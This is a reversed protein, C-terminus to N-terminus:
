RVEALVLGLQVGRQVVPEVALLDRGYEQAADVAHIGTDLETIGLELVGDVAQLHQQDVARVSDEAVGEDVVGDFVADARDGDIVVLCSDGPSALVSILDGQVFARHVDAYVLFRGGVRGLVFGPCETSHAGGRM